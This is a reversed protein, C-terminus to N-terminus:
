KKEEKDLVILGKMSNDGRCLDYYCCKTYYMNCNKMNKEFNGESIQYAVDGIRDFTKEVIEESLKGLLIQIQDEPKKMKKKQM